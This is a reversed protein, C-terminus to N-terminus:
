ETHSKYLAKTKNDTVGHLIWENRYQVPTKGTLKKFIKNFYFYDKYGSKECIEGVPLHTNRLLECAYNIRLGSIMETFTEGTEKKFFSVCTILIWIFCKHYAKYLYM